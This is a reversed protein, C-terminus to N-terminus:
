SVRTNASYTMKAAKYLSFKKFGAKDSSVVQHHRAYRDFLEKHAAERRAVDAPREKISTSM